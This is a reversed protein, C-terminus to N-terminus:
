FFYFICNLLHSTNFNYKIRNKFNFESRKNLGYPQLTYLQFCWFTERTLLCKDVDDKDDINWIQEIVTFQFDPLQHKQKTLIFLLKVLCHRRLPCLQNTTASDSRSNMPRPVLMSFKVDIILWKIFNIVNKSKCNIHQWPAFFTKKFSAM